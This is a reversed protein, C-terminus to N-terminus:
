CNAEELMPLFEKTNMYEDNCKFMNALHRFSPREPANFTWCQKMIDYVNDPCGEPQALRNNRELFQMVQAGTMSGYPQDGYSFMEWLTVGYSWVDSASSFTGYYVSEPAYWKVPWRGGKKASYENSTGVARSLGFDGVKAQTRSSLLINRTALDRHVFGEKELYMMGQAIQGAWLYLNKKTIKEPYDLLYDMLAGLSVLEQVLMLYERECVGILKVICQHDFRVMVQAERLFNGRDTELYKSNLTKIAVPIMEGEPSRWTGKMVSGFEGQGLEYEPRIAHTLRGDMGDAHMCYHEILHELSTFLPGANIFYLPKRFILVNMVKNSFSVTLADQDAARKRVLFHGDANHYQKLLETAMARDTNEHFWDSKSVRATPPVYANLMDCVETHGKSQALAHPVQNQANRPWAPVHFKLLEKICQLHGNLAAEHIACNRSDRHHYLPMAGSDLLAQVIKPFGNQCAIMLPSFGNRDAVDLEADMAILKKTLNLFGRKCSLHLATDGQASKENVGPHIKCELMRLADSEEGGSSMLQHLHNTYGFQLSLPPPYQGKPCPNRLQFPLGDAGESYHRVLADLGEFLKSSKGFSYVCEKRQVIVFHQCEADKHCENSSIISLVFDGYSSANERILFTGIGDKSNRLKTESLARNTNPHFWLLPRMLKKRTAADALLAKKISEQSLKNYNLPQGPASM